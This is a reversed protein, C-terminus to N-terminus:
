LFIRCYVTRLLMYVDGLRISMSTLALNVDLGKKWRLLIVPVLFHPFFQLVQGCMSEVFMMLM